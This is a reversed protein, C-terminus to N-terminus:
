LEKSLQIILLIAVAASVFGFIMKIPEGNSLYLHFNLASSVVNILILCVMILYFKLSM